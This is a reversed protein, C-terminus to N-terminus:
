LFIPNRNGDIKLIEQIEGMCFLTIPEKLPDKYDIVVRLTGYEEINDYDCGASFDSSIDIVVLFYGNVYTDFPIKFTEPSNISEATTLYANLYLQQQMNMLGQGSPVSRGNKFVQIKNIEFPLFNFQNKDIEGNYARQSIQWIYIREPLKGTFFTHDVNQDGSSVTKTKTIPTSMPYLFGATNLRNDYKKQVDDYLKVRNAHLKAELVRIKYEKDPKALLCSNVPARNFRIMVETQAPILKDVPTNLMLRTALWFQKSDGCKSHRKMLGKNNPFDAQFTDHFGPTDLAWCNGAELFTKTAADTYFLQNYIYTWWAYHTESKTVKQDSIFLDVSDFISYGINNVVSCLDEPAVASGDKYLIQLKLYLITRSLDTYYDTKDLRFELTTEEDKPLPTFCSYENIQSEAIASQIFPLQDFDLASSACPRKTNIANVPKAERKSM